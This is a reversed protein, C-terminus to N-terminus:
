QSLSVAPKGSLRAGVFAAVRDTFPMTSAGIDDRNYLVVVGHDQDPQFFVFSTYGGTGGDHWYMHTEETYLWGMGVKMQPSVDARLLHTMAIAAPLTAGESSNKGSSKLHDPHLEAEVLALLDNADSRLAGAGALATLDWPHAPANSPSHGQIFRKQQEPSLAIVTDNMALPGTIESRVLDGYSIGARRALAFGLLGFGVNSYLFKADTPLAVGHKSIFASLKTGDYDAYPNNPDAPNFNDPMRPLGSHQTVLDVLRIEPGQPKAVTGPPLLERVPEDLTVRKQEVLQALLLATFSKTVSGIEFISDPRATGYAFIRRQGHDIVGIVLGGATSKALVGNSLVPALEQDLVQKLNALAVPPQAPLMKPPAPAAPASQQRALDLPLPQGQTFTGKLMKGDASLTGSYSGHVAPVTFSLVNDTFTADAGPIGRAGQDLSDLSIDLKSPALAKVQIGIRLSGGPTKLTGMWYGDVPSPQANADERNFTLPLPSGQTWTGSISDCDASVAGQYSGSVSPVTFSVTGNSFTVNAGPLGTVNQDPSDLKVTLGGAAESQIHLVLHLSGAGTDLSGIWNGAIQCASGQAFAPVTAVLVAALAFALPVIWITPLPRHIKRARETGDCSNRNVTVGEQAVSRENRLEKAEFFWVLIGPFRLIM